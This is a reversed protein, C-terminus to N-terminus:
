MSEGLFRQQEPSPPSSDFIFCKHSATDPGSKVYLPSVAAILLCLWWSKRESLVWIRYAFFFQVTVSTVGGLLPGDWVSFHPNTLHSPDGYGSAFWYYLDSIGLGSQVTEVLFIGYAVSPADVPLACHLPLGSVWSSSTNVMM